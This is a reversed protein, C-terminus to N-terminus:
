FRLAGILALYFQFYQLVYRLGTLINRTEYAILFIM